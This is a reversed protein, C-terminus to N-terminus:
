RLGKVYECLWPLFAPIVQKEDIYASLQDAIKTAADFSKSDQKTNGAKSIVLGLMVLTFVALVAFGIKYPTLSSKM